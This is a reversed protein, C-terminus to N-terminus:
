GEAQLLSGCYDCLASMEDAWEVSDPLVSGGCYPCKPPLRRKSSVPEAPAEIPLALGPSLGNVQAQLDDAQGALGRARLESVVRGAVRPPRGQQGMQAMRRLGQGLRGMGREIEGALIWARGAQLTLQPARPIGRAAAQDALQEFIAAAPAPKGEGLLRHAEQLRLLARPGAPGLPRRLRPARFRRRFM